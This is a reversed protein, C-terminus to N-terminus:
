TFQARYSVVEKLTTAIPERFGPLCDALVFPMSYVLEPMNDELIAPTDVIDVFLHGRSGPLGSLFLKKLPSRSPFAISEDECIEIGNVGLLVTHNDSKVKQLAVCFM